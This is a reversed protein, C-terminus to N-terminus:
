KEFFDKIITTRKSRFSAVMVLQFDQRANQLFKIAGNRFYLNDKAIYGLVGDFYIIFLPRNKMHLRRRYFLRKSMKFYKIPTEAITTYKTRFSESRRASQPELLTDRLKNALIKLVKVHYNFNMRKLM